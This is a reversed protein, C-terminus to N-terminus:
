GSVLDALKKVVTYAIDARMSSPCWCLLYGGTWNICQAGILHGQGGVNTTVLKDPAKGIITFRLNGIVIANMGTSQWEKLVALPDFGDWTGVQWYIQGKMDLLYGVGIDGDSHSKASEDNFSM